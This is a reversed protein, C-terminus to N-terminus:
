RVAELVLETLMKVEYSDKGQLKGKLNYYCGTCITVFTSSTLSGALQELHPPIYCCQTGQIQNVRLGEIRGLVRLAPELDVPEATIRRRFRYCGPYYDIEMDLRAGDLFRDLLESCSLLELDTERACNTYNPECAACFLVVSRAGLAEAQRFNELVFGRSIEKAEAIDAENKSVVAPQVFPMWGCCYERPLLTYDIKFYDLLEKFDRLAKPMAAPQLCGPIIVYEAREGMRFGIDEELLRRREMFTDTYIGHARINDVLRQDVM